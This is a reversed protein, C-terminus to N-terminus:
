GTVGRHRPPLPTFEVTIRYRGRAGQRISDGDFPALAEDPLLCGLEVLGTEADLWEGEYDVVTFRADALDTTKTVTGGTM